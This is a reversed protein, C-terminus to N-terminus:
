GFEVVIPSGDAYILQHPAFEPEISASINEYYYIFGYYLVGIMLDADGDSDWDGFTPCAYENVEVIYGASTTQLYPFSFNPPQAYTIGCLFVVLLFQELFRQM